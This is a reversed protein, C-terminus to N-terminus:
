SLQMSQRAEEFVQNEIDGDDMEARWYDMALGARISSFCADEEKPTVPEEEEGQDEDSEASSSEADPNDHRAGYNRLSITPTVPDTVDPLQNEEEWPRCPM